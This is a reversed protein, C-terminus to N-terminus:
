TGNLFRRYQDELLQDDWVPRDEDEDMASVSGVRDVQSALELLDLQMFGDCQRKCHYHPDGDIFTWLAPGGCDDCQWIPTPM